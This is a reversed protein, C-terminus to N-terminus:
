GVYKEGSYYAAIWGSPIKIWIDSGVNKVAQCTVKTGKRLCGSSDANQRANATLQGYSKAAYNTGAGTRVRLADVKTTYTKGVAYTPKATGTSAGSSGLRRNVETQVAAYDYGAAELKAKRDAGTGWRGAIVEKAIEATSKKGSAPANTGGTSGGGSVSAYKPRAYGRINGAGVSLTRRAVAQGKNGEITTITRGSVSEVYGIHDSYGENPQTNDGWNFLIIDGPKPTITGDEIWIGKTKFIKIHEECGCETGILDVAGAKIAAASVTTDCWEDTYKVAYGRALPKHSNYLDIIKKFKGNAESYGLWSRMVNLVDQATVGVTNGGTEAKKDAYKAYYKKGYGARKIKVSERQDAPKEFNLLVNDSAARVNSATKLSAYLMGYNEKLEKCLFDLQMELDGISKGAARAFNLLDQKRSWYTWQALGYGASDRVFNGYSGNDVAKTYGDDTYGLSKEYTNQLNKPNLASEAYLNGMLGAAGYENFGESILRNWIKEANDAGRLAM